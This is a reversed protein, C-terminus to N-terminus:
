CLTCGFWVVCVVVVIVVVVVVVFRFFFVWYGMNSISGGGSRLKRRKRNASGIEKPPEKLGFSKAVRGLHLQRMNFIHRVAKPMAAYSRVFSLFASNASSSFADGDRALAQM